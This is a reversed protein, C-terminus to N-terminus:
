KKDIYYENGTQVPIGTIEPNGTQPFQYDPIMLM